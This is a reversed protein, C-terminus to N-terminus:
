ASQKIKRNIEMQRGALHKYLGNRAILTQHNGTEAIQGQDLVVIADANRVTSLRHAIVVTTRNHMLDELADHVLRENISDLHSTAEDLILVPADKLFARAIAVRQRQGGSLRVGREGVPTNLGEPLADIFERLAAREIADHLEKKDAAPRAIMINEQISNHFLYTDQTVLAINKRLEDLRFQSLPYGQFTIEGMIPDWFRMLLHAATTKGAGSPGVLAVMKGAPISFNADKLAFRGDRLYSFTVKKMELGKEQNGFSDVGPGDQIPASENQVAYLRRTAGLTDALQRGIHAIESIPLFAAMSILTLMPLISSDLLNENVLYTGCLVVALGGLGTAVELIATQMTLDKFFPLRIQHYRKTKQLLEEGYRESQQFTIIESLGQITDVVHANLSGLAERARSGLEDIRHRLMLPSLAVLVLFPLLVFAMLPGNYILTLVVAAPVLVAVFAPAVTHAFFFEVLEVDNTATGVLDGTRRRTMYAPGLSDLKRYLKIRLESLLRFAMDHALWSELWHLLGALPAIVFLVILLNEYSVNNKVAAVILASIIGVGILAGVRLIGLMFVVFLKKKWPAVMQMLYRITELWGMGEAKLISDPPGPGVQRDDDATRDMELDRFRVSAGDALFDDESNEIQGTMLAYYAKQDRMLQSHTGEEVIQGQELVLIRDSDIVSSLRHAFVLTTRGKMARDLAEQILAENETDVSSLAEDLVLIPANKLVARAIAIRQRQGGSLKIGREGIVTDYKQPLGDIFEHANATKSAELLENETADAKGFLLNERVTGHFLYTDQQVVAIHRHLTEKDLDRLDHEGVRIVGSQPDYLRLLLRVVTSKGCGSSGVIGIREGAAVSFNMSRHSPRDAGPYTFQVSEFRITPLLDGRIQKSQYVPTPAILPKQELLALIGEASSQGMMGNHLLERLERLPRFVEIGIMLLILLVELSMLGQTVRYAGLGLMSAAGLAIGTDTIGRTLANTALVWMTRKFLEHSKKALFNGRSGSQGFAQLTALGQLADLFEAGFASYAKQRAKANESDWSHFLAPAFLTLLAFVLMVVAVPWDLFFVFVFFVVPVILAIFLQPIYRGFYTELQEVGDVVSLLVDGTRHLGFYAPGLEVIKEYLKQRLIALVGASTHHAFLNRWYELVGRLLMTFAILSLPLFLESFPTGKFVQALLWGLGALRAIGIVSALVGLFVTFAIRMRAGQTFAWLRLDFYM